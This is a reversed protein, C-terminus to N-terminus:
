FFDPNEHANNVHPYRKHKVWKSVARLESRGVQSSSVLRFKSGFSPGRSTTKIVAYRWITILVVMIQTVLRPIQNYKM